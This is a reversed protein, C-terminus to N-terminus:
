TSPLSKDLKDIMWQLQQDTCDALKALEVYPDGQIKFHIAFAPETKIGQLKLRRISERALPGSLSLLRAEINLHIFAYQKEVAVSQCFIEFTFDNAKFSAIFSPIERIKSTYSKFAKLNEYHFKITSEFEKLNSSECIIDLDSSATDIDLPLTGALTPNFKELKTLIGIESIAVYARKQRENGDLLYDINVPTFKM